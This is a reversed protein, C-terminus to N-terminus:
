TASFIFEGKGMKRSDVVLENMRKVDADYKNDHLDIEKWVGASNVTWTLNSLNFTFSPKTKKAM